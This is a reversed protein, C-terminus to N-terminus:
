LEDLFNIDGESLTVYAKKWNKTKGTSKLGVRKSKGRMSATNVTAVKVNFLTEVAQKIEIKNARTDVKFAVTEQTEQLLNSKETLCPGKIINYLGRM